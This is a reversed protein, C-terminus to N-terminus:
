GRVCGWIWVRVGEFGGRRVGACWMGKCVKADGLVESKGLRGMVSVGVDV